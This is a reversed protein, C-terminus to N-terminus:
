AGFGIAIRPANSRFYLRSTSCRAARNSFSSYHTLMFPLRAGALGAVAVTHRAHETLDDLRSLRGSCPEVAHLAEVRRVALSILSASSAVPKAYGVTRLSLPM